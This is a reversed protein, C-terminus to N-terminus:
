IMPMPRTDLAPRPASRFQSPSQLSFPQMNAWFPAFVIEFPPVAGYVGPEASPGTPVFANQSAGDNQRLAAIAQGALKGLAIGRTKSDGETMKSLSQTLASDLSAQQEPFSALLVAHAAAAAAAVPEAQADKSQLAYTQYVPAIGNLADHMALHTMANIRAGMLSNVYAPGGMAQLTMLNWDLIVQNSYGKFPTDKGPKYAGGREPQVNDKFKNCSFLFTVGLLLALLRNTKM